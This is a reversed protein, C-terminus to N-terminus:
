HFSLGISLFVQQLVDQADAIQLGRRRAMRFIVPQYIALFEAWSAADSPDSVRAILSHSTEPFEPVIIEGM